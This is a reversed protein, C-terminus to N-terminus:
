VCSKVHSVAGRPETNKKHIKHSLRSCDIQTRRFGMSRFCCSAVDSCTRMAQWDIANWPFIDQYTPLDANSWLSRESFRLHKPVTVSGRSEFKNRETRRNMYKVFYTGHHRICGPDVCSWPRSSFTVLLVHSIIIDLPWVKSIRVVRVSNSPLINLVLGLARNTQNDIDQAERVKSIEIEYQLLFAIPLMCSSSMFLALLPISHNEKNLRRNKFAM